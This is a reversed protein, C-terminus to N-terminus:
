KMAPCVGSGYNGGGSSRSNTGNNDGRMPCPYEQGTGRNDNNDGRMPCPYEQGTGRNDNYREAGNNNGSLNKTM